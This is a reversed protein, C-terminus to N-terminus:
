KPSVPKAWALVLLIVGHVKMTPIWGLAGQIAYHRKVADVSSQRTGSLCVLNIGRRITERIEHILKDVLSMRTGWVTENDVARLIWQRHSRATIIREM